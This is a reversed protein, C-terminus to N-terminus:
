FCLMCVEILQSPQICRDDYAIDTMEDCESNFALLRISHGFPSALLRGDDNWCLEKIFGRGARPEKAYNRLREYCKPLHSPTTLTTNSNSGLRSNASLSSNSECNITSVFGSSSSGAPDGDNSVVVIARNLLHGPPNSRILFTRPRAWVMQSQEGGDTM